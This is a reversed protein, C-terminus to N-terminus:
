NVYYPKFTVDPTISVQIFNGIKQLLEAALKCSNRMGAIQTKNKIEPIELTSESPNGSIYNPVRIHNPITKISSVNGPEVIEYNGFSM